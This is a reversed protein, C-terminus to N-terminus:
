YPKLWKVGGGQTHFDAQYGNLLELSQVCVFMFGSAALFLVKQFYKQTTIIINASLSHVGGGPQGGVSWLSIM